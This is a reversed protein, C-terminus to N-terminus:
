NNWWRNTPTIIILTKLLIIRRQLSFLVFRNRTKPTFYKGMDFVLFVKGDDNSIEKQPAEDSDEHVGSSDSSSPISLFLGYAMAAATSEVITSVHGDFGASKASQVIADCRSRSFNAPVGIVCHRVSPVNKMSEDFDLHCPPSIALKKAKNNNSNTSTSTDYNTPLGKRIQKEHSRQFYDQAEMRITKLLEVAVELPPTTDNKLQQQANSSTDDDQNYKLIRSGENVKSDASNKMEEESHDVLLQTHFPLSSLFKDDLELERELQTLPMGKFCYM